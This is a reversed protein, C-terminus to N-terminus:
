WSHHNPLSYLRIFHIIILNNRFISEIEFFEKMSYRRKPNSAM